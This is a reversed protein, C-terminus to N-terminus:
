SVNMFLISDADGSAPRLTIMAWFTSPSGSLVGLGCRHYSGFVIGATALTM